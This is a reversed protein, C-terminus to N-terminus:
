SRGDKNYNARAATEIFNVLNYVITITKYYTSRALFACLYM